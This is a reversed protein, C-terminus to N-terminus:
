IVPKLREKSPKGIAKLLETCKFIITKAYTNKTSRNATLALASVTTAIVRSDVFFMKKKFFYHVALTKKYMTHIFRIFVTGQVGGPNNKLAEQDGGCLSKKQKKNKRVRVVSENRIFKFIWNFFTKRVIRNTKWIPQELM